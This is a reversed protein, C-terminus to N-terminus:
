AWGVVLAGVALLALGVSAWPNRPSTGTSLRRQLDDLRPRVRDHLSVGLVLLVLCPVCYVVAYAALVAMATPVGVRASVLREIAIVYPFANPLDAGTVVVGLPFATWPTFWAPLGPARRPRDSLRQVAAVALSVAAVTFAVRRLWVLGGDVTSAAAASSFYVVVGLALVTTAAAAVFVLATVVRRRMTSLLVLAVTVITAPNLSDAAALGAIVGYQDPTM